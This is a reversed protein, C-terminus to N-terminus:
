VESLHIRGLNEGHQEFFRREVLATKGLSGRSRSDRMSSKFQAPTISWLEFSGDDQEFAAVIRDLRQLM